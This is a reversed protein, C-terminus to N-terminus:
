SGQPICVQIPTSQFSVGEPHAGPHSHPFGPQPLSCLGRAPFETKGMAADESWLSRVGAADKARM